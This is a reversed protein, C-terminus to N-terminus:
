FDEAVLSKLKDRLLAKEDKTNQIIQKFELNDHLDRFLPDISAYIELGSTFKHKRLHEFAKDYNKFFAYIGALNYHPDNREVRGLELETNSEKIQAEFLLRASDKEGNEWLAYAYRHRYNFHAPNRETLEQYINIGKDFDQFFHCYVEAKVRLASIVNYESLSDAYKLTEDRNGQVLNTHAYIWYAYGLAPRNGQGMEIARRSYFFTNDFDLIDLYARAIFCYRIATFLSFPDLEISKLLYPIGTEWNGIWNSYFGLLEYATANNSNLSIATEMETIGQDPNGTEFLYQGLLRHGDSSQPNFVLAKKTLLLFTDMFSDNYYEIRYNRNWYLDALRAYAAAFTSDIELAQTYFSKSTYFDKDQRKQLYKVLYYQGKQYLDYAKPNLTPEREIRNMEEPTIKSQLEDAITRAIQSQVKFIDKFECDYSESWIHDETETNILQVTVRVNHEDQFTSGELIHDVGLEAGIQKVPKTSERYQEVSTRSIVKLDGIGSINSLIADMMGDSIYQNDPNDSFNKFPLVAISKEQIGTKHLPNISVYFIISLIIIVSASVLYFFLKRIRHSNEKGDILTSFDEKNFIDRQDIEVIKQKHIEGPPFGYQEHFCKNFYSSSSFGTSYAVESVSLNGEKLIDFAKKLRVSRIFLSTSIGTIKNLRRHLQSRSLGLEKRLEDIGFSEDSLHDLIIQIANNLLKQDKLSLKINKPKTTL